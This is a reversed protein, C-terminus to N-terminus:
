KRVSKTESLEVRLSNVIRDSILEWGTGEHDYSSPRRCEVGRRVINYRLYYRDSVFAKIEAMTALNEQWPKKHEKAEGGDTAKKKSM